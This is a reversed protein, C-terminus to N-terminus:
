HRRGPSVLVGGSNGRAGNMRPAGFILGRRPFVGTNNFSFPHTLLCGPSPNFGCPSGQNLRFRFGREFGFRSDFRGFRGNDFLVGNAWYSQEGQYANANNQLTLVRLEAEQRRLYNTEAELKQKAIFEDLRADRMAADRRIEELSPLGLEKRRKEWDEDGKIRAREYQELDRNTITRTAKQNANSRPQVQVREVGIRSLFSGSSENNVRETSSVDISDLPFSVNFGPATEYIVASSTVIFNAPIEVRKGGLFVITYASAITWSVFIFLTMCIIRGIIGKFIFRSRHM